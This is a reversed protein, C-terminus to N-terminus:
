PSFTVVKPDLTASFSFSVSGSKNPVISSFVAGKIQSNEAAFALSAAALANYSKAIGTGSLIPTNKEDILLHLGSFRVTSPVVTEIIPFLGSFATHNTLLAAGTILRDRLRSLDAVTSIDLSKTAESLVAEKASLRSHLLLSYAFVGLAVLLMAGLIAYAGYWLVGVAASSTRAASTQHPIFSTPITPPM